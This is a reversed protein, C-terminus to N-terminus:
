ASRVAARALAHRRRALHDALARAALAQATEPDPAPGTAWAHALAGLPTSGRPDHARASGTLTCVRPPAPADGAGDLWALAMGGPTAVLTAAEHARPAQGADDLVAAPRLGAVVLRSVDLPDIPEDPDPGPTTQLLPGPLTWRLHPWDGDLHLEPPLVGPATPTRAITRALRRRMLPDTRWRVRLARLLLPRGTEADWAQWTTAVPDATVPAGRRAGDITRPLGRDEQVHDRLRLLAADDGDALATEQLRALIEPDAHHMADGTTM